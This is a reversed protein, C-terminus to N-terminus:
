FGKEPKNKMALQRKLKRSEMFKRYNIVLKRVGWYTVPTTLAALLLGGVLFSTALELGLEFLTGWSQNELVLDVKDKIAEYTFNGGILKNGVYCQVPYIFWISVPNTLLTGLAAGIKSGKLIFSLPISIILQAGFPVACGIFMGIAWGRAIYDPTGKEKVIKFYFNRISKMTKPYM